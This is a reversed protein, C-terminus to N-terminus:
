PVQTIREGIARFLLALGPVAADTGPMEMGNLRRRWEAVVSDIEDTEIEFIVAYQYGPEPARLQQQTLAFRQAAVVGPISLVDAFHRDRYWVDLEEERGASASNYVIFRYATM